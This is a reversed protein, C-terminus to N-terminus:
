CLFVFVTTEKNISTLAYICRRPVVFALKFSLSIPPSNDWSHIM